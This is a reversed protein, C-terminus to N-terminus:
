EPKIFYLALFFYTSQLYRSFCMYAFTASASNICPIITNTETVDCTGICLRTPVQKLCKDNAANDWSLTLCGLMFGGDPQPWQQQKVSLPTTHSWSFATLHQLHPPLNQEERNWPAKEAKDTRLCVVPGQCTSSGISSGPSSLYPFAIMGLLKLQGHNIPWIKCVMVLFALLELALIPFSYLDPSNPKIHFFLIKKLSTWWPLLSETTLSQFTGQNNTLSWSYNKGLM